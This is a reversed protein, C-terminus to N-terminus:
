KGCMHSFDHRHAMCFMKKCIQCTYRNSLNMKENCRRYTCKPHEIPKSEEEERKKEKICGHNFTHIHEGCYLLKCEECKYQNQIVMMISCREFSCNPLREM